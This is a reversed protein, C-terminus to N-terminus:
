KAVAKVANKPDEPIAALIDEAWKNTDRDPLGPRGIIQMYAWAIQERFPSDTSVIRLYRKGDQADSGIETIPIFELDRLNAALPPFLSEFKPVPFYGGVQPEHLFRPLRDKMDDPKIHNNDQLVKIYLTTDACKCVLAADVKRKGSKSAQLDCSPTLIVRYSNPDNRDGNKDFLLDGMLPDSGLPPYIFQEWSQLVEGPLLTEIDMLAALRRRVCRLLLKRSGPEDKSMNPWIKPATDGIISHITKRFEVQIERLALIYKGKEVLFQAVQADSGAGKSICVIFPNDTPVSPNLTDWERATHIAVPILGKEWILAWIKQGEGEEAEYLDLIIAEIPLPSKLINAADTFSKTARIDIKEGFTDSLERKIRELANDDDEIILVLLPQEIDM